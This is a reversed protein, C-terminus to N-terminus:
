CIRSNGHLIKNIPQYSILSHSINSSTIAETINKLEWYLQNKKNEMKPNMNKDAISALINPGSTCIIYRTPIGKKITAKTSVCM